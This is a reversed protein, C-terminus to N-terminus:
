ESLSASYPSHLEHKTTLSQTAPPPSRLTALIPYRLYQEEGKRRALDLPFIRQEQQLIYLGCYNITDDKRFM